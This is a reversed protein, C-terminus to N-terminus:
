ENDDRKCGFIIRAGVAILVLGLISMVPVPWWLQGTQPLKDATTTDSPQKNTTTDTAAKTTTSNSDTTSTEDGWDIPFSGSVTTQTETVNSVPATTTIIPPPYDPNYTNVVVFRWGDNRYVVTCKDPIKQEIVSWESGVPVEWTYSWNNDESLTVSEYLEFDRYLDIVIEVPRSIQSDYNEWVKRVDFREYGDTLTLVASIKPFITLDPTNKSDIVFIAPTPLYTKEGRVMKKAAALYVGDRLGNFIVEGDRNTTGIGDAKLNYIFAYEKLTSAADALGAASLDSTNVSFQAFDGELTIKTGDYTGIRYASWPMGEVFEGNEKCVLTLTSTGEASANSCLCGLCLLVAMGLAILVSGIKRSHVAM